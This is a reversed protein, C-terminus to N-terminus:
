VLQVRLRNTRVRRAPARRERQAPGTSEASACFDFVDSWVRKFTGKEFGSQSNLLDYADYDRGSNVQAPVLGFHGVIDMHDAKVLLTEAGNPWLMSRTNVIGDNDWLEIPLIEKGVEFPQPQPVEGSVPYVFPGGACARYAYRYTLDMRSSEPTPKTIDPYTCPNLLSWRPAPKGHHFRYPRTGITAYSRTQIGRANWSEVERERMEPTFHAPSTRDGDPKAALDDIAAFDTAMHRLWLELEAAAEQAMAIRYPDSSRDAEAESLADRIAYGLGLDAITAAWNAFWGQLRDVIPVQSTLVSCRLRAVVLERGLRYSRVWDAINTGWQPVSLFVVRKILRLIQEAEVESSEGRAGDVYYRNRLAADEHLNWLLRRIDLGGTSHGVLAVEDGPLFEGRAIRKALYNRLRIARTHVAATPFNDFYHLVIPFDAKLAQRWSTFHPTLGTYYEMQGLADFGAFGPVLVLHVRRSTSSSRVM